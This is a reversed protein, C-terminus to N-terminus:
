ARAKTRILKREHLSVRKVIGPLTELFYKRIEDYNQDIFTNIIDEHEEDKLGWKSAEPNWPSEFYAKAFDYDRSPVNLWLMYADTMFQPAYGILEFILSMFGAADNIDRAMFKRGRELLSGSDSNIIEDMGGIEGGTSKVATSMTRSVLSLFKQRPMWPLKEQIYIAYENEKGGMEPPKGIMRRVAGTKPALKELDQRAEEAEDELDKQNRAEREAEVQANHEEITSASSQDESAPEDEIVVRRPTETTPAELTVDEIDTNTAPVDTSVGTAVNGSTHEVERQQESSAANTDETEM